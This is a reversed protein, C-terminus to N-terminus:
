FDRRCFIWGALGLVVAEFGISTGLVWWVNRGRLAEETREAIQRQASEGMKGQLGQTIFPDDTEVEAAGPLKIADMLNRELLGVTEGTKPLVTKVGVLISSVFRITRGNEEVEALTKKLEEVRKAAAESREIPAPDGQKAPTEFDKIRKVLGEQRFQNMERFQIFSIDATNLLFLLFWFLLTLLLSAIGSRTIIGALVCVCYLFSYMLTVIPVAMFLGPIWEGGRLGITLFCAGTFAAVQLTVFLLSFVYKTLFLRLRGIPKSLTLEISGGAIFDPFTSATSILALIGAIWSLWIPVAFQAFAAKYFQATTITSSNVFENEIEFWLVGVGKPTISIGAFAAAVLISLALVLWFLRKSALERYADVALARTQTLIM